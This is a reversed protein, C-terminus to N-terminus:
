ESTHEESRIAATSVDLDVLITNQQYIQDVEVNARGRDLRVETHTLDPSVMQLTSNDGLRVFIGPTLLVEAKGNATALVQGTELTTNGVSKSSLPAGEISAQGEVYNLTGPRALNANQGFASACLAAVSLTWSLAKARTMIMVVETSNSTFIQSLDCAYLRTM